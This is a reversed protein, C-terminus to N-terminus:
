KIVGEAGSTADLDGDRAIMRATQFYNTSGGIYTQRRPVTTLERVTILAVTHSICISVICLLFLPLNRSSADYRIIKGDHHCNNSTANYQCSTNECTNISRRRKRHVTGSM